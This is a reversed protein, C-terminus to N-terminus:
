EIGRFYHGRTFGDNKIKELFGRYEELASESGSNLRTYLEITDIVEQESENTINIRLYKLGLNKLVNYDWAMCMVKSNFIEMNCQDYNFKAPFLAGTKDKLAFIRNKCLYCANRSKNDPQLVGRIPCFRSVMLPLRGHIIVETEIKNSGAIAAIQKLELEPSLTASELKLDEVTQAAFKNLLNMSYDAHIKFDKLIKFMKVMGLNGVLAGTFGYNEIKKINEYISDLESKLTIRPFALFVEKGRKVMDEITRPVIKDAFFQDSQIYVRSIDMTKIRPILEADPLFVSIEPKQKEVIRVPKELISNAREKFAKEDECLKKKKEIRKEGILEVTKRRVDNIESLPLFLNQEIEIEAKALYFPTNGMSELQELVKDPTLDVKKSEEAPKKGNVEVVTGDEDWMKLAIHNGFNLSFHAYLPVRKFIKGSYTAAANSVLKKDYVKYVIDDKRWVQSTSIEAIEGSLCSEVKEGEQLLKTITTSDDGGPTHKIVDGMRLFSTLAIKAIHSKEDFDIIKGCEIGKHSPTDFSMLSAGHEDGIFGKTFGGRNFILQLDKIDEEKTSVNRGSGIFDLHKRYIRTVTAVYEPSKMRGEIKISHVGTSVIEPLVELTCLDKTSLLYDGCSGDYAEYNGTYDILKYKQRCPQACRGRNGSRGGVMSSFICQGSYGVCLAGHVFIELEMGQARQAIDTIQSLTLERALIVRKFGLKKLLNVGEFNHITMQTSAHLNITPILEKIKSALGIDQIIIADIDSCCAKYIVEVSKNFEDDLILTNIALYVNVGRLHAYKIANALEKDSFNEAYQRASFDKAGVYVADAGSEVAALFSQMNGAPALLEPLIFGKTQNVSELSM